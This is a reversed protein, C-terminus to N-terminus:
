EQDPKKQREHIQDIREQMAEALGPIKHLHEFLALAHADHGKSQIHKAMAMIIALITKPKQTIERIMEVIAAVIQDPTHLKVLCDAAVTVYEKKIKDRRLLKQFEALAEGFASVQFFAQACVLTDTASAQPGWSDRLTAIEQATPPRRKQSTATKIHQDIDKIQSEIASRISPDISPSGTLLDIFLQRAENHLGQARYAEAEKKALVTTIKGIM